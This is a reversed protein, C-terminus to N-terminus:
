DVLVVLVVLAVLVVRLVALFIMGIRGGQPHYPPPPSPTFRLSELHNTLAGFINEWTRVMQFCNSCILINRERLSVNFCGLAVTKFVQKFFGNVVSGLSLEFLEPTFPCLSILWLSSLSNLPLSHQPLFGFIKGGCRSLADSGGVRLAWSSLM